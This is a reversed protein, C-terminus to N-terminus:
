RSPCGPAFPLFQIDWTLDIAILINADRSCFGLFQARLSWPWFAESHQSSDHEPFAGVLCTCMACHWPGFHGHNCCGFHSMLIPAGGCHFLCHLHTTVWDGALCPPLIGSRLPRQVAHVPMAAEKPANHFTFRLNHTKKQSRKTTGEKKENLGICEPNCLAQVLTLPYALQATPHM